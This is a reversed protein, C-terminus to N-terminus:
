FVLALLREVSNLSRMKARKWYSPALLGVMLWILDWGQNFLVSKLESAVRAVRMALWDALFTASSRGMVLGALTLRLVAIWAQDGKVNFSLQQAM